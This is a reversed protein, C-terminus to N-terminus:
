TDLFDWSDRESEIYLHKKNGNEMFSGQPEDTEDITNEADKLLYVNSNSWTKKKMHLCESNCLLVSIEYCHFVSIKMEM